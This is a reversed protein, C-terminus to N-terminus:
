GFELGRRGGIFGFGEFFGFGLGRSRCFVLVRWRVEGELISSGSNLGLWFAVRFGVLIFFVDWM